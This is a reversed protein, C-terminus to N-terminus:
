DSKGGFKILNEDQISFPQGIYVQKTGKIKHARVCSVHFYQTYGDVKTMAIPETIVKECEHCIFSTGM